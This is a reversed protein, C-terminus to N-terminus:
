RCNAREIADKAKAEAITQWQMNSPVDQGGCALPIIHDTVYGPRGKPYGTANQFQKKAAKNRVIKGNKDRDCNECRDSRSAGSNPATYASSSAASSPTTSSGSATGPPRRDHAKVKTGDKRTYERVHVTKESKKEKKESSKTSSSSKGGSKKQSDAYTPATGGAFCFLVAITLFLRALRNRM